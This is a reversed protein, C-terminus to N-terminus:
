VVFYPFYVLAETVVTLRGALMWVFNRCLVLWSLSFRNPELTWMSYITKCACCTNLIASSSHIHSNKCFYCILFFEDWHSEGSSNTSLQARHQLSGNPVLTPTQPVGHCTATCEIAKRQLLFSSYCLFTFRNFKREELGVTLFDEINMFLDNFWIEFAFVNPV